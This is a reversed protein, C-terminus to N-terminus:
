FRTPINHLMAPVKDISSHKAAPLLTYQLNVDEGGQAVTSAACRTLGSACTQTDQKCLPTCKYYEFDQPYTNTALIFMTRNIPSSGSNNLKCCALRHVQSTLGSACSLTSHCNTTSTKPSIDQKQIQVCMGNLGVITPGLHFIVTLPYPGPIDRNISKHQGLM